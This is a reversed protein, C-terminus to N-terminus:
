QKKSVDQKVDSVSKGFLMVENEDLVSKSVPKAVADPKDDQVWPNVPECPETKVIKKMVCNNDVVNGNARRQKMNPQSFRVLVVKPLEEAQSIENPWGSAEGLQVWEHRPESGIVLRWGAAITATNSNPGNARSCM